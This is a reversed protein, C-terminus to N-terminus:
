HRQMLFNNISKFNEWYCSSVWLSIFDVSVFVSGARNWVSYWQPHCHLSVTCGSFFGFCCTIRVPERSWFLLGPNTTMLISERVFVTKGRIQSSMGYIHHVYLCTASRWWSYPLRPWRKKEKLYKHKTNSSGIKRGSIQSKKGKGLYNNEQRFTKTDSDKIVHIM